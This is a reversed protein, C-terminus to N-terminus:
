RVLKLHWKILFSINTCFIYISQVLCVITDFPHSTTKLWAVAFSDCIIKHGLPALVFVVFSLLSLLMATSSSSQHWPKQNLQLFKKHIQIRSKSSSIFIQNIFSKCHNYFIILSLKHDANFNFCLVIVLSSVLVSPHDTVTLKNCFWYYLLLASLDYIFLLKIIIHFTQICMIVHTINVEHFVCSTGWRVYLSRKQTTRLTGSMMQQKLDHIKAEFRNYEDPKYQVTLNVTQGCGQLSYVTALSKLLCKWFYM